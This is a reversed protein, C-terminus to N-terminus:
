RHERSAREMFARLVRNMRTQYGRGTKRFFEYVEPDIRMSIAVKRKPHVIRAETFWRDDLLPAVDPDNAIDAEIEADTTARVRELDSKDLRRSRSTLSFKTINREKTPM